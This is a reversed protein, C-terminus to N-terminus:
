SAPLRLWLECASDRSLDGVYFAVVQRSRPDLALWLWQKNAKRGVFSWLEDAQVELCLWEIARDSSVPQVGPNDPLSVELVRCIGRLSLRELRLKKVLARTTEDIRHAEAM